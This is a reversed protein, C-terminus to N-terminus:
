TCQFAALVLVFMHGGRVRPGVTRWEERHRDAGSAGVRSYEVEVEVNWGLEGEVM